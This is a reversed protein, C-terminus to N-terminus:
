GGKFELRRVVQGTMTSATQKALHLAVPGVEIPDVWGTWNFDPGRTFYAGETKVPGPELLNVAINDPAVEKALGFCFRELAAKTAGYANGSDRINTSGGSTLQIIHGHKRKIMGPLVAKTLIFAGHVNVEFILRWRKISEDNLKAYLIVATSNVMTDVPGLKEEVEEVMSFVDEDKTVDCRVGIAAGGARTIEDVTQGITGEIKGPTETRAVVAVKAGEAAYTKAIAKGIGRSSGAVIIVQGDLAGM